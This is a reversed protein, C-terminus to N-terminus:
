RTGESITPAFGLRTRRTAHWRLAIASLFDSRSLLWGLSKQLPSQEPASSFERSGRRVAAVRGLVESAGIAMDDDNMCDGRTVIQTHGASSALRVVRHIVFQDQRQFLIIEGVRPEDARAVVTVIDGPWLAPLMSSGTVGLRVVGSSQLVEAAMSRASVAASSASM